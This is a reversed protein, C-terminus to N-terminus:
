SGHEGVPRLGNEVVTVHRVDHESTPQGDLPQLALEREVDVEQGTGERMLLTFLIPVVFLTLFTSTLLGGVVARALPVNAESGKGFGIAMPLLDLFTALFTMIIPRFRITAASTIAKGVPAGLARQKNAFDVLLVGNSVVIGVLFIVGMESQVNLTTRTVFLTILVGILGLPVTFMIIFPGLYSRFLPVMLLYVLIAALLLGKGLDSFSRNMREYEGRLTWRLSKLGNAEAELKALASKSATPSAKQATLQQELESTRREIKPRLALLQRNIDGAVSAIDRNQTNVLIDFTRYLSVHNLEVADIRHRITVLQGLKVGHPQNTGTAYINLVDELRLDANEPYQVAVFYQNGSQTDIWFNRNISVSSNMAAVLQLVVDDASLGFDAAKKRDVDFLLYPADLRQVVHVDVAGPVNAIQQKIDHALASAQHTTGGQIQIDIPSSTGNNLATSVM